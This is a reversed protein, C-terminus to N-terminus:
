DLHQHFFGATLALARDAEPKSYTKGGLRAFAHAVLDAALKDCHGRALAFRKLQSKQAASDASLSIAGALRGPTPTPCPM